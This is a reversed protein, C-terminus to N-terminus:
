FGELITTLVSKAFDHAMRSVAPGEEAFFTQPDGSVEYESRFVYNQNDFIVKNKTQDRVTVSAVITIEFIRVRGFDDLVAGRYGFSKITGLMVADAGDATSVIKLSRARRLAEDVMAATFRQEVKFRLAQNQFAPIALTKIHAPLADGRGAPKYCETFGSSILLLILAFVPQLKRNM